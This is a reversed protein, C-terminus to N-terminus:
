GFQLRVEGEEGCLHTLLAYIFVAVGTMEGLEEVSALGDGFLTKMEVGTDALGSYYFGSLIEMGLAGGVYLAGSIVFLVQLRRELGFFWPGLIVALVLVGVGYPAVWAYHLIGSAPVYYDILADLKEHLSAIEDISLFAFVLALLGWPLYKEGEANAKLASVALLGASFLLMLASFFTPLNQERDFHFLPVLGWVEPHDLVHQVFLAFCNAILLGIIALGLVRSFQIPSFGIGNAPAASHEQIDM